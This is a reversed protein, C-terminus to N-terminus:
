SHIVTMKVGDFHYLQGAREVVNGGEYVRDVAPLETVTTGGIAVTLTADHHFSVAAGELVTAHGYHIYFSNMAIGARPESSSEVLHYVPSQSNARELHISRLDRKPTTRYSLRGAVYCDISPLPANVLDRQRVPIQWYTFLRMEMCARLEGIAEKWTAVVRGEVIMVPYAIDGYYVLYLRRAKLVVLEVRENGASFRIERICIKTCLHLSAGVRILAVGTAVIGDDVDHYSDVIYIDPTFFAMRMLHISTSTGSRTTMQMDFFQVVHHGAPVELEYVRDNLVTYYCGAKCYVANDHYVPVNMIIDSDNLAVRM